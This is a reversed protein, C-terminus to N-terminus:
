LKTHKYVNSSGSLSFKGAYENDFVDEDCGDFCLPTGVYSNICKIQKYHKKNINETIM